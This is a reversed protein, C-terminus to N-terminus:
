SQREVAEKLLRAYTVAEDVLIEEYSRSDSGDRAVDVEKIILSQMAAIAAKKEFDM